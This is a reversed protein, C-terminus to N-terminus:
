GQTLVERYLRQLRGAVVDPHYDSVSALGGEILAGRREPDGRLDHLARALAAEDGMAYLVGNYGDTVIEAPGGADAAVVPVQAAMGELVVQGFPEPIRSAHVLVHMRALEPWIDSRFGRFDVRAGVGLADALEHLSQEYDEEGFLATGVLACRTDCDPFASAFARLFLDQGKWPAVRGVLGVTFPGPPPAEDAAPPRPPIASHLIVARARPDLTAKTAQSNAIVADALRRTMFRIVKVAPRPLYDPSIRDRVHWVIPVGALRAAISGYVGAKLSNTHVIDPRLRRLRRALRAVYLATDLVAGVRLSRATVSDKRLGRAREAMPLVETSIGARTLEDVLPGHEALIVHPLVDDLHTVLRLLALEGGSLQAVHNLYVIRM